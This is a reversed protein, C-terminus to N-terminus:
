GRPVYIRRAQLHFLNRIGAFKGFLWLNFPDNRFAEATIDGIRRADGPGARVLAEGLEINGAQM